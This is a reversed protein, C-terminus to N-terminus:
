WSRKKRKKKLRESETVRRGARNIQKEEEAGKKWNLKIAERRVSKM